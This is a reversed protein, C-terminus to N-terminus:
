RRDRKRANHGRLVHRRPPVRPLRARRLLDPHARRADLGRDFVRELMLRALRAVPLELVAPAEPAFREPLPDAGEVHTAPRGPHDHTV